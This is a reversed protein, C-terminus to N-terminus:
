LEDVAGRLKAQINSLMIQYDMAAKERPSDPVTGMREEDASQWEFAVLRLLVQREEVNFTVTRTPM